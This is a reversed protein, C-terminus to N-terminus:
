DINIELLKINNHLNPTIEIMTMFCYTRLKDLNSMAGTSFYTAEICIKKVM